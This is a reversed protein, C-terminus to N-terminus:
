SAYDTFLGKLDISVPTTVPTGAAGGLTMPCHVTGYFYTKTGDDFTIEVAREAPRERHAKRLEILAPDTIDRLSTFEIRVLSEFGPVGFTRRTHITNWTAQSAEGGSPNVEQITNCTAGFTLKHAFAGGAVFTPMDTTDIGELEFDDTASNDVRVVRYNLDSMSPVVLLLLDGDVFGHGASTVKGPNANTIATIAKGADKATQVKVGVDIWVPTSM